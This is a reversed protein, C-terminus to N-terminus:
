RYREFFESFDNRRRSQRGVELGTPEVDLWAFESIVQSM